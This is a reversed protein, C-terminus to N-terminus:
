KVKQQDAGYFGLLICQCTQNQCLLIHFLKCSYKGKFLHLMVTEKVDALFLLSLQENLNVDILEGSVLIILLKGNKDLLSQFFSITAGPDKVYYLMQRNWWVYHAPLQM